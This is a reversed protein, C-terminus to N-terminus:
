AARMSVRLNNPQRFALLTEGLNGADGLLIDAIELTPRGLGVITV